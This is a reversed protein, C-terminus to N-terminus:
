RRPTSVGHLAPQSRVDHNTIDVLANIPRLGIALLRKQLWEPGRAMKRAACLDYHSGRACSREEITVSVPCPSRAKSRSPTARARKGMDAAALDRAIGHVGTCDQRNPTLNIEIVPDDLGAWKAYAEGIPADAPLEIIGDHDDSLELEAESCWCAAAKSAASPASASRSTRARNYTGPPSFVGTMGTRTRRAACSRSRKGDGIDVM